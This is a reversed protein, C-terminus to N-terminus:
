AELGRNRMAEDLISRAAEGIGIKREESMRELFARQVDTLRYSIIDRMRERGIPKRSMKVGM